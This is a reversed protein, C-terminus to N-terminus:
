RNAARRRAAERVHFGIGRLFHRTYLEAAEEAPTTHLEPLFARGVADAFLTGLLIPAVAEVDLDADVFGRAKLRGLYDRILRYSCV